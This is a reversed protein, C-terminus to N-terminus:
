WLLGSTKSTLTRLYSEEGGRQVSRELCFFSGFGVFFFFFVMFSFVLCFHSKKQGFGRVCVWVEEAVVYQCLRESLNSTVTGAFNFDLPAVVDTSRNGVFARLVEKVPRELWDLREVGLALILARM